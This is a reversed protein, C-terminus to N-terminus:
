AAARWQAPSSLSIQLDRKSREMNFQAELEMKAIDLAALTGEALSSAEGPAYRVEARAAQPPNVRLSRPSASVPLYLIFTTGNGAQSKVDIYGGHQRVIGYVQALGLGTAQGLAKTTFFPEFIHPLVEPSIGLGTDSIFLSVWEQRDSPEAGTIMDPCPMQQGPGPKLRSLRFELKGGVPMADRANLALNTLARRMQVQDVDLMYTACGPEIDLLVQIDEPLTGKLIDVTERVFSVLPILQKEPISQRSFDLLQRILHSAQRGHQLIRELDQQVAEPTDLHLYALETLGVITQLLNNFHHAIGATLHEAVALAAQRRLRTEDVDTQVADQLAPDGGEV